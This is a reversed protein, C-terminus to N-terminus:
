KLRLRGAMIKDPIDMGYIFCMDEVPEVLASSLEFVDSFVILHSSKVLRAYAHCPVLFPGREIYIGGM